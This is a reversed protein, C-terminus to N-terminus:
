DIADSKTEEPEIEDLFNNGDLGHDCKIGPKWPKEVRCVPFNGLALALLCRWEAARDM